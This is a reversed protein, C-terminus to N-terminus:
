NEKIAELIRSHCAQHNINCAILIKTEESPDLIKIKGRDARQNTVVKLSAPEYEIMGPDVIAAAAIADHLSCGGKEWGQKEVIKIWGLAQQKLLNQAPEDSSLSAFDEPTFLAQRTISLGHLKIKIGSNFVIDAAEPDCRINFEAPAEEDQNGGMAYIYDIQPIIEPEKQIALALNTFPGLALISIEGPNNRITEIILDVGDKEPDNHAAPPTPGYQAQWDNLFASWEQDPLLPKAAGKGIPIDKLGLHKLLRLINLYAIDVSANGHVTTIAKIEIQDSSNGLFMLAAGDDIEANPTGLSIDTDIIIPTRKHM